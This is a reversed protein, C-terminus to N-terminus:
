EITVAQSKIAFAGSKTGRVTMILTQPGKPADSWSTVKARRNKIKGDSVFWSVRYPEVADSTIVGEVDLKGAGAAAAPKSISIEPSKWSTQLATPPYIVTDGVVSESESDASFKVKYRMRAYGQKTLSALLTLNDTPVTFSAKYSYISLPGAQLESPKADTPTVVVPVGYQASSDLQVEPSINAGPAAALYFNLTVTDGPKANVPTPEVGLARLKKIVEQRDANEDGCSTLQTVLVVSVLLVLKSLYSSLVLLTQLTHEWGFLLTVVTTM